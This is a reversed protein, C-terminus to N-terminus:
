ETEPYRPIKKFRPSYTMLNGIAESVKWSGSGFGGRNSGLVVNFIREQSDYLDTTSMGKTKFGHGKPLEDIVKVLAEIASELSRDVVEAAKKKGEDLEQEDSKSIFGYRTESLSDIAAMAIDNDPIKFHKLAPKTFEVPLGIEPLEGINSMLAGLYASTRGLIVSSPTRDYGVDVDETKFPNTKVGTQHHLLALLAVGETDLKEWHCNHVRRIKEEVAAGTYIASGKVSKVKEPDSVVQIERFNASIPPAENYISWTFRESYGSSLHLHKAGYYAVGYEESSELRFNYGYGGKGREVSAQLPEFTYTDKEGKGAVALVSSNTGLSSKDDFDIMVVSQREYDSPNFLSDVTKGLSYAEHRNQGDLLATAEFWDAVREGTIKGTEDAFDDFIADETRLHMASLHIKASKAALKAAAANERAAEVEQLAPEFKRLVESM